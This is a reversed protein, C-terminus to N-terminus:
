KWGVARVKFHQANRYESALTQVIMHALNPNLLLDSSGGTVRRHRLQMWAPAVEESAHLLVRFCRLLLIFQIRFTAQTLCM